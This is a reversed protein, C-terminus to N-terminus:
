SFCKKVRIKTPTHHNLVGLGVLRATNRIHNVTFWVRIPMRILAISRTGETSNEEATTATTVPKPPQLHYEFDTLILPRQKCSSTMLHFCKGRKQGNTRPIWRDRHFGRVFALSASCQHKRKDTDSYVTSFFVDHPQHNSVNDRGNHRWQLTGLLYTLIERHSLPLLYSYNWEEWCPWLRISHYCYNSLQKLSHSWPYFRLIELM